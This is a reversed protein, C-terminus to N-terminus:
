FSQGLTIFYQTARLGPIPNLNRGLDIRIPGVKTNYRLGIGISNTYNDAFQRFNINSYVNGGDYFVVGGLNKYIPLPFRVESNFIALMKGGVPVNILTCTSSDSPNSCVQVPRQPGAANIAFGRLSDPGGTFFSESLPVDSGNFPAALGLRFNNAWVLKSNIPRYFSSQAFFRIFSASSGFARPSVAFTVTEFQGKHADLPKDRTDRIYQLSPTSLRVKRDQPLVLDPILLNTLDTWQYSYQAVLRQTKKKDLQREIQFSAQGIAAAFIPNETTREATVSFLSSWRSGHLHPDAYNFSGRQDLRSVVFAVTATEAHGRINHRGYQVTVRPGIFSKQSVTFKSGLSVPPLGPLAVAGVPINGDRPIVELGGGLDLSNRKSEHVRVAVPEQNAGQGFDIPAVSAWDFVGLGYLDSEASFLRQQSLPQETRVNEATVNEIFKPQTHELGLLVVDAVRVLQGEDVRYTVDFQHPADAVPAASAQMAANPFGNNLFHALIRSRDQDVNRASYPKGPALQLRKSLNGLSVPGEADVVELSKVKDQPGETIVFEVDVGHGSRTVEPAIRASSFGENQYLALLSNTSQKLLADSYKGRSLPFIAKKIPIADALEPDSFYKNNTFLVHDVRRRTGREIEYTVTLRDASKASYATVTADFYSKSQFYSKLNRVGENILDQDAAGEEFIPVLKHLTRKWVHAGELKVELIPGPTINLDLDATHNVAYYSPHFDIKPALRGSSRYYTRLREIGKEIRRRSYSQGTKLSTSSVRAWLSKLTSRLQDANQASVGAIAIQGIRARPGLQCNFVVNVLRHAPDPETRTTVQAEFFGEKVFFEQLGATRQPLVDPTYVADLQIQSTQLLITYHFREAGPFSLLGVHFVPQLLLVVRLGKAEPELSAQIQQFKETKQIAAVSNKLKEVSFADGAKLQLLSRIRQEDGGPAMAIDVQSVTRGEFGEYAAQLGSSQPPLTQARIQGLTTAGLLMSMFIRVARCRV